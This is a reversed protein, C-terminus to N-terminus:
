GRRSQRAARVAQREERTIRGDRNADVRDFVRLRMTTAEALSVRGDGNQDVREFLRGNGLRGVM